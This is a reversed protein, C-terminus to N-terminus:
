RLGKLITQNRAMAGEFDGLRRKFYSKRELEIDPSNLIDQLHLIERQQSNIKQELKHRSEGLIESIGIM